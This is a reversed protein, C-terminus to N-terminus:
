KTFSLARALKESHRRAHVDGAGDGVANAGLELCPELGM